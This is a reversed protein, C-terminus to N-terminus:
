PFSATPYDQFAFGGTMMPSSEGLRERSTCSHGWSPLEPTPTSSGRGLLAPGEGQEEQAMLAPSFILLTALVLFLARTKM